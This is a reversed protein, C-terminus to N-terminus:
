SIVVLPICLLLSITYFNILRERSLKIGARASICINVDPRSLPLTSSESGLAVSNSYRQPRYEKTLYINVVSFVDVHFISTFLVHIGGDDCKKSKENQKKEYLKYINAM